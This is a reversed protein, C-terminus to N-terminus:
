EMSLHYQRYLQPFRAAMNDLDVPYPSLAEDLAEELTEELDDGQTIIEDEGNPLILSVTYWPALECGNGEIKYVTGGQNLFRILKYM